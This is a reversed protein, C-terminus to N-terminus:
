RPTPPAALEERLRLLLDTDADPSRLARRLLDDAKEPLNLHHKYLIALNYLAVPDEQLRILEEFIRAAELPKNQKFFCVGLLYRLRKDAPRSRAARELFNEAQSWDGAAMFEEGLGMLAGADDPNAQLKRMFVIVADSPDPSASFTPTGSPAANVTRSIGTSNTTAPKNKLRFREEFTNKMVAFSTLFM